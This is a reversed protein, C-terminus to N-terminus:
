LTRNYPNALDISVRITRESSRWSVIPFLGKMICKFEDYDMGFTALALNVRVTAVDENIDLGEMQFLDEIGSLVENAKAVNEFAGYFKNSVITNM